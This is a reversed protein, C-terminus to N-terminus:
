AAKKDAGAANKDLKRRAWRTLAFLKARLQSCLSQWLQKCRSPVAGICRLVEAPLSFVYDFFQEQQTAPSRPDRDMGSLMKKSLKKAKERYREEGRRMQALLAKAAANEPELTLLTEATECAETFRNLEYLAQAKRYLAKSNGPERGIVKDSFEVAQTWDRVKLYGQSMNLWLKMEMQDVEALQDPKDRYLGKDVIYRVSKLSRQWSKLAEEYNGKNYEEKGKEIDGGGVGSSEESKEEVLDEEAGGEAEVVDEQGSPQIELTSAETAESTM